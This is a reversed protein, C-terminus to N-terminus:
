FLQTDYLMNAKLFIKLLNLPDSFELASKRGSILFAQQIAPFTEARGESRMINTEMGLKIKNGPHGNRKYDYISLDFSPSATVCLVLTVSLLTPFLEFKTIYFFFFKLPYFFM